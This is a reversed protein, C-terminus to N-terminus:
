GHSGSSSTENISGRVEAPGDLVAPQTLITDDCSIDPSLDDSFEGAQLAADSSLARSSSSSREIVTSNMVSAPSADVFIMEDSTQPTFPYSAVKSKSPSPYPLSAVDDRGTVESSDRNTVHNWPRISISCPWAAVDFVRNSDAEPVALKFAKSFSHTNSVDFCFLVRVKISKCHEKIDM